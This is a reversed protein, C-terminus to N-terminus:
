LDDAVRPVAMTYNDMSVWRPNREVKARPLSFFERRAAKARKTPTCGSLWARTTSSPVVDHVQRTEQNPFSYCMGSMRQNQKGAMM